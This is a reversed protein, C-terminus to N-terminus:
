ENTPELNDLKGVVEQLMQDLVVKYARISASNTKTEIGAFFVM